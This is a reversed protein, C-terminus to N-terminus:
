IELKREPRLKIDGGCFVCLEHKEGCPKCLKDTCTSGYMQDEGCIACPQTTMMAGGLKGVLYFCAKCQHKALRQDKKPDTEWQRASKLVSEGKRISMFTDMEVTKADVKAKGYDM